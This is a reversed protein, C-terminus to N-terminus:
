GIHKLDTLSTRVETETRRGISVEHDLPNVECVSTECCCTGFKFMCLIAVLPTNPPPYVRTYAM